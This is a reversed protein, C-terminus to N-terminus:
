GGGPVFGNMTSPFLDDFKRGITKANSAITTGFGTLGSGINGLSQADSFQQNAAGIQSNIGSQQSLFGSNSAFQSNLSAVGGALGSSELSGTNGGFNLAQATKIRRERIQKRRTRQEALKNAREVAANRRSAAKSAKRGAIFQTATGAVAGVAGIILAIEAM